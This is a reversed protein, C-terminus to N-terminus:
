VKIGVIHRYATALVGAQCTWAAVQFLAVIFQMAVPAAQAFGFVSLIATMLYLGIVFPVWALVLAVVLSVTNGRGIAWSERLRMPQGVAISVLFPLFRAGALLTGIFIAIVAIQGIFIPLVVAPRSAVALVITGVLVLSVFSILYRWHPRGVNLGLGVASMPGLLVFRLWNVTLLSYATLLIGSMILVAGMRGPSLAAYANVAPEAAGSSATAAVANMTQLIIVLDDQGFLFAGFCLLVPVLGLRLVDDRQQWFLQFTTRVLLFVPISQPRQAPM